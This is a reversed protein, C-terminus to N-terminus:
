NKGFRSRIYKSAESLKLSTTANGTRIYFEENRDDTKLFVPRDSPFVRVVCCVKGDVDAQALSVHQRFTPGIMNHFIHTFHNEFGDHNQKALSGLDADLGLINKSDDVGIILHGGRGNLFAAITKMAAKEMAKNVKREKLDWRFSSKFELNEGEERVLLDKIEPAIYEKSWRFYLFILIWTQAGFIFIAQAIQFSLYDAIPLSRYIKAYHAFLGAVIYVFVAGIEILVLNKVIILPSKQAVRPM